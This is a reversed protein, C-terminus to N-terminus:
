EGKGVYESGYTQARLKKTAYDLVRWKAETELDRFVLAFLQIANLEDDGTDKILITIDKDNM